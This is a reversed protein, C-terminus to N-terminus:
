HVSGPLIWHEVLEQVGTAIEPHYHRFIRVAASLARDYPAGCETMEGFARLVAARCPCARPSPVRCDRDQESQTNAVM